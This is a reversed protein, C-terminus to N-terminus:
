GPPEHRLHIDGYWADVTEGTNDTDSMVGIGILRGPAEGFARRYDDVINRSLRRWQGIGDRGSAAVVMKVQGTRTHAIVSGVPAKNEWIYVLTAYPLERGAVLRGTEFLIQESFPLSGKDGDFALVIRVPSDESDRYRNDAARISRGAKWRWELWPREAPDLDLEHMLVSASAAAHAHLVSTGGDDVLWYETPKKARTII